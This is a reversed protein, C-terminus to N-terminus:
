LHWMLIDTQKLEKNQLTLNSPPSQNFQNQTGHGLNLKQDVDNLRSPDIDIKESGATM